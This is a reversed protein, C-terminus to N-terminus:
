LSDDLFSLFPAHSTVNNQEQIDAREGFLYSTQCISTQQPFGSSHKWTERKLELDFHEPVLLEIHGSGSQKMGWVRGEEWTSVKVLLVM